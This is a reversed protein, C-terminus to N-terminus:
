NPRHRDLASGESKRIRWRDAKELEFIFAASNGWLVTVFAERGKMEIPGVELKVGKVRSEKDRFDGTERDLEAHVAARFKYRPLRSALAQAEKDKLSNFVVIEPHSRLVERVVYECVALRIHGEDTFASLEDTKNSIGMDVPVSIPSKNSTSGEQRSAASPPEVRAPEHSPGCGALLLLILILKTNTMREIPLRWFGNVGSAIM